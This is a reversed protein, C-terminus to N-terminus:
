KEKISHETAMYLSSIRNLVSLWEWVITRCESSMADSKWICRLKGVIPSDECGELAPVSDDMFYVDDKADIRDGLRSIEKMATTMKDYYTDSAVIASTKMLTRDLTFDVDNEEEPFHEALVSFFQDLQTEFVKMLKIGRQTVPPLHM